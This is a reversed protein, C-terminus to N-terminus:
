LIFMNKIETFFFSLKMKVNEAFTSLTTNSATKLLYETTHYILTALVFVAVPNDFIVKIILLLLGVLIIILKM